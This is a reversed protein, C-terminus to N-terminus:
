RINSSLDRVRPTLADISALESVHSSTLALDLRGLFDEDPMVRAFADLTLPGTDDGTLPPLEVTGTMDLNQATDRGPALSPASAFREDETVKVPKVPEVPSRRSGDQTDADDIQVFATRGAQADVPHLHIFQGVTIGLLLATAVAAPVWGGSWMQVRPLLRGTFPFELLRSPKAAGVLMDLRRSIRARQTKLRAPTFIDDFSASAAAPLADLQAAVQHYRHECRPCSDVHRAGIPDSLPADSSTLALALVRDDSLHRGKGRWWAQPHVWRHFWRPGNMSLPAADREAM